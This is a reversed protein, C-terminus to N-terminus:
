GETCITDNHDTLVPTRIMKVVLSNTSPVFFKLDFADYNLFM